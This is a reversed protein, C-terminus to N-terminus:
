PIQELCTNSEKPCTEGLFHFTLQSWFALISTQNKFVKSSNHDKKEKRKKKRKKLTPKKVLLISCM